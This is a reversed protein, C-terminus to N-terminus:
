SLAEKEETVWIRADAHLGGRWFFPLHWHMHVLDRWLLYYLGTLLVGPPLSAQPLLKLPHVPGCGALRTLWWATIDATICSAARFAALTDLNVYEHGRPLTEDTHVRYTWGRQECTRQAAAERQVLSERAARRAAVTVEHLEIHGDSYWVQFDPTYRHKRGDADQFYLTEPQSAYDAVAPDRELLLVLKREQESEFQVLRGQKNTTVGRFNHGLSVVRRVNGPPPKRNIAM